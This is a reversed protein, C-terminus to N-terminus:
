NQASPIRYYIAKAELEDWSRGSADNELFGENGAWAENERKNTREHPVSSDIRWLLVFKVESAGM